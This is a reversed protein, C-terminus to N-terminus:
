GPGTSGPKVSVSIGALTLNMLKWIFNFREPKSKRDVVVKFFFVKDIKKKEKIM